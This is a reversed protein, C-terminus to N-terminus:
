KAAGMDFSKGSAGIFYRRGDVITTHNKYAPLSWDLQPTQGLLASRANGYHNEVKDLQRKFAAEGLGPDLETLAAKLLDLEVHSIQGLGTAGTSSLAKMEAIKDFTLVSKLTIVKSALERHDTLGGPIFKAFDFVGGAAGGSREGKKDAKGLALDRAENLSGFVNDLGQLTTMTRVMEQEEKAAANPDAITKELKGDLLVQTSGDTQLKYEYKPPSAGLVRITEGTTKNYLIDEDLNTEPNRSTRVATPVPTTVVKDKKLSVLDWKQGNWQETRKGEPTDVERTTPAKKAEPAMAKAVELAKIGGEFNGSAIMAQGARAMGEPSGGFRKLIDQTQAAAQVDTGLGSNAISEDRLKNTAAEQQALVQPSYGQSLAGQVDTTQSPVATRDVAAIADQETQFGGLIGGLAGLQEEQEKRQQMGALALGIQGLGKFTQQASNDGQKASLGQITKNLAARRRNLVDTPSEFLGAM